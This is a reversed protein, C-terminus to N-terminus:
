SAYGLCAGANPRGKCERKLRQERRDMSEGDAARDVPQATSKKQKRKSKKSSSGAAALVTNNVLWSSVAPVAGPSATTASAMPICLAGVFALVCIRSLVQFRKTQM